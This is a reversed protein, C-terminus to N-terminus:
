YIFCCCLLDICMEPHKQSIFVVRFLSESLIGGGCGIDILKKGGLTSNSEIFQLRLPNIDHSSKFEGQRDWWRTSISEFKNIEDQDLNSM